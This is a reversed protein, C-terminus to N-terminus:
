AKSRGISAFLVSLDLEAQDEIRWDNRSGTLVNRKYTTASGGKHKGVKIELFLVHNFFKACRKSFNKTGMLPYTDSEKKGNEEYEIELSHTIVIFNTHAAQVVLLVDKLTEGQPNYEDWGPKYDAGKGLCYYNLVSDAFASGSDLIVFDEHTCKSINFPTGPFGEKLGQKKACERCNVRGHEDCIMIDTKMTFMKTVTEFARPVQATDPIKFVTIKEAHEEKLIGKELMTLLTDTGNEIDIWFVRKVWPVKAVTAALRSKGTKADGYILFSACNQPRGSAKIAKSLSLLDM